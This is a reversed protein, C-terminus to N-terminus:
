SLSAVKKVEKIKREMSDIYSDFSKRGKATLDFVTERQRRILLNKREEKRVYGAEELRKLHADLNGDTLETAERLEAFTAPSSLLSAMIALRSPEHVLPDVEEHLAQMKEM